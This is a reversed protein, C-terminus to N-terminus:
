LAESSKYTFNSFAHRLFYIATSFFAYPIAGSLLWKPVRWENVTSIGRAFQQATADFSFGAAIVCAIAAVVYSVRQLRVATAESLTDLVVSIFIHVRDRTLEPMVLFVMLILMYSVLSSAWTTPAAFFHRVVVEYTYSCVIAVLCFIALVYGVRTVADHLRGLAALAGRADM